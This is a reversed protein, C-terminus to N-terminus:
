MKGFVVQENEEMVRLINGGALKIIDEDTWNGQSVLYAILKPYGSVDVLDYPTRDLFGIKHFSSSISLTSMLGM